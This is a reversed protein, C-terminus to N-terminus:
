KLTFYKGTTPGPHSGSELISLLLGKKDSTFLGSSCEHYIWALLGGVVLVEQCHLVTLVPETDQM